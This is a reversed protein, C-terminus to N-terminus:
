IVQQFKLRSLVIGSGGGTLVIVLDSASFLDNPNLPVSTDM